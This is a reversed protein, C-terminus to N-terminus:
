LKGGSIIKKLECVLAGKNNECRNEIVACLLKELTDGVSPGKPIGLNILDAGNVSLDKIRVCAGMELQKNYESIFESYRFDSFLSKKVRALRHINDGSLRNMIYRVSIEDCLIEEKLYESLVVVNSYFDNDTKLSKIMKKIDSIDAGYFLLTCACIEDFSENAISRINKNYFERYKILEPFVVCMVDYYDALVYQANKGCILKKFETFKREASINQLLSAKRHVADATDSEIAFDLVSSFRIARMIRLGDENFRTDACGVCRILKNKIDEIGGFVDVYGDRPSYAIANVTFDRRSLDEHINKTFSVEEPHRNDKYAGDIRYTTIEVNEGDSVVTVTGHKIGTEIVRFGNFCAIIEHPLANTTLDYDHPVKGMLADRVCGGVLYGEYGNKYLIDLVKEIYAPIYV